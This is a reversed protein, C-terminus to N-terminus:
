GSRKRRGAPFIPGLRVPMFLTECGTAATESRRNGRETADQLPLRTAEM